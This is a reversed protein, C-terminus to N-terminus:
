LNNFIFEEYKFGFKTRIKLIIIAIIKDFIFDKGMNISIFSNNDENITLGNNASLSCKKLVFNGAKIICDIDDCNSTDIPNGCKMLLLDFKNVM